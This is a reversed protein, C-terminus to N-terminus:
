DVLIQFGGGLMEFGDFLRRCVSLFRSIDFVIKEIDNIGVAAQRAFVVIADGGNVASQDIGVTAAIEVFHQRLIIGFTRLGDFAITEDGVQGPFTKPVADPLTCDISGVKFRSIDDHCGAAATIKVGGGVDAVAFDATEVAVSFPSQFFAAADHDLKAM